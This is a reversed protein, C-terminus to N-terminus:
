RSQSHHNTSFYDHRPAFGEPSQVPPSLLGAPTRASPTTPSGLPSLRDSSETRFFGGFRPRSPARSEVPSASGSRPSKPIAAYTLGPEGEERLLEQGHYKIVDGMSFECLCLPARDNENIPDVVAYAPLALSDVFCCCSFIEIPKSVVLKKRDPIREKDKGKGSKEPARLVGTAAEEASMVRYTVEMSVEHRVRICTESWEQTSPRLAIDDPLRGLHHVMYEEGPRVHRLISSKSLAPTSREASGRDEVAGYNAENVHDLLIVTRTEPPPHAVRSPDSPSHLAFYQHLKVKIAYIAVHVPPSVLNFRFLLLGSVMVHQLGGKQSQLAMTYPGIDQLIGEFRYDLSPPPSSLGAGGPNAILFVPREASLVDTGLQGLGKAKAYVSHRTRGYTCRECCATSSPVIISFAFRHEGKDLEVDHKGTGFLSVEKDLTTHTEYPRAEGWSVDQRGVLRVTLHNLTRKKSLRLTVTGQVIPDQAPQDPPAPHLFLVGEDLKIDLHPQSLGVLNLFPAAGTRKQGNISASAQQQESGDHVRQVGGSARQAGTHLPPSTRSGAPRGFPQRSM